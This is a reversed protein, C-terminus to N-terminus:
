ERGLNRTRWVSVVMRLPFLVGAVISGVAFLVMEGRVYGIMSQTMEFSLPGVLAEPGNEDLYTQFRNLEQVLTFVLPICLFLLVIKIRDKGALWTHRLLFIYRSLTIFAVIFMVNVAFFPFDPAWYWIPLLVAAATLATLIWWMIELRMVMRMRDTAM